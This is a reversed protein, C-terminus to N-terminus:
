RPDLRYVWPPGECLWFGWGESDTGYKGEFLHHVRALEVEDQVRVAKLEYLTEGVRLRVRPDAAIHRIWRANGCGGISRRWGQSAIFFDAGSGVGYVHVSYPVDPRTELQVRQVADTFGWDDVTGSAVTGRLEGGPVVFFKPGCATALVILLVLGFRM